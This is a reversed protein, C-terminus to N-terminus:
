YLYNNDTTKICWTASGAYSRKNYGSPCGRGQTVVTVDVVRPNKQVCLTRSGKYVTKFYDTPCMTGLGTIDVV